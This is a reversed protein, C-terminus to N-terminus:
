TILTYSTPIQKLCHCISQWSKTQIKHVTSTMTHHPPLYPLSPLHDKQSQTAFYYTPKICACDYDCILDQQIKRVLIIPKLFIIFAILAIEYKWLKDGLLCSCQSFIILSFKGSTVLFVYSSTQRCLHSSRM